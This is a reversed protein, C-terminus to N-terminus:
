KYTSIVSITNQMMILLMNLPTLPQNSSKSGGATFFNPLSTGATNIQTRNKSFNMTISSFFDVAFHHSQNRIHDTIM